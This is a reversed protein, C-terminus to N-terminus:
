KLAGAPLKDWFVQTTTPKQNLSTNRDVADEPLSFTRPFPISENVVPIQLNSPFGTRRYGNYAEISNGFAAIYYERLVIELRQEDSGILYEQLVVDVYADIDSQKAAYLDRVNMEEDEVTAPDDEIVVKDLAEKNLEGYSIVKAMSGRIGAELSALADGNAGLSLVAEAKLFEMFSSLMVPFIGAGGLNITTFAAAPNDADFAGGGPYLGYVTKLFRDNPRARLDEHDRGWYFDGIYCFDFSPDDICSSTLDTNTQRYVYYRLRPDRVTKSDKLLWMFYNGIYETQGEGNDYGREFYPHRSDVPTQADSYQFQFDNSEDDILNDHTLLANIGSTNATNLLLRFKLSNAMKIWKDADGNYFLDTNPALTANNLDIIAADIDALIATYITEDDDPAPNFIDINNAESFPIDGLYDVLTATAYAQLLKAMGKHFLLNDDDKALNSIIRTNERISYVDLWESDLADPEAIDSYSDTMSEYRMVDDTHLSFDNMVEAFVVQLENLVFNADVSEPTLENPDEQLDFNTIECSEFFLGCLLCILIKIKKM